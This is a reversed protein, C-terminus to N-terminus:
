KIPKERYVITIDNIEFQGPIHGIDYYSRSELPLYEETLLNPHNPADLIVRRQSQVYDLVRFDPGGGAGYYIFFPMGNFYDDSSSLNDYLDAYLAKYKPQGNAGTGIIDGVVGSGTVAYGYHGVNAYSFKFQMSYINNVSVLTTPKLAVTIWDQTSNDTTFNGTASQNEDYEIVSSNWSDFGKRNHYYTTDSFKGNFTNSGNIAYNLIVGSMYGYSKFTVYVKYIKKRRSPNGFDIDKTQINFSEAAETWQWLYKPEDDWTNFQM